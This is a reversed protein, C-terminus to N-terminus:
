LCALFAQLLIPMGTSFHRRWFNIHDGYLHLLTGRLRPNELKENLRLSMESYQFGTALHQRCPRTTRWRHNSWNALPVAECTSRFTQWSLLLLWRFKRTRSRFHSVSSAFLRWRLPSATTM